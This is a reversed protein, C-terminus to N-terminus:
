KCDHCETPKCEIMAIMAQVQGTPLLVIPVKNNSTLLKLTNNTQKCDHGLFKQKCKDIGTQTM